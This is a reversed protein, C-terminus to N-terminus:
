LSRPLQALAEILRILNKRPQLNGVALVYPGTLGYRNRVEGVRVPDAIHSYPCRAALPVVTLKERPVGYIRSIDDAASESLTLVHSATRVSYPVYTSLLRLDRR